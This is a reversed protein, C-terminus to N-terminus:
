KGWLDAYNHFKRLTPDSRTPELLPLVRALAWNAPAFTHAVYLDLPVLECKLHLKPEYGLATSSYWKFGNQMAWSIVDRLTYFYLHLDLALAYDLGVYEDHLTDGEAMCFSFAIARGKQRWIFFRARDPMDASIRRFYEPTLEEFRLSSREFVQRYLPYVEDIYPSIDTLAQMEIPDGAEADRFKRRLNKRTNKSLASQLYDDFSPYNLSLRAAPLSPVRTYGNGAFRGLPQRYRAPFEKLVVM